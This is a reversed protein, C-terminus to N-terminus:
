RSLFGSSCRHVVVELRDVPVASQRRAGTM